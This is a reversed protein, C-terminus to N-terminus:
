PLALVVADGAAFRLRDSQWTPARLTALSRQVNAGRRPTSRVDINLFYHRLHRTCAQARWTIPTRSQAWASLEFDTRTRCNEYNLEAFPREWVVIRSNCDFSRDRRAHGPPQDGLGIALVAWSALKQQGSFPTLAHPPGPIVKHLLCTSSEAFLRQDGAVLSELRTDLRSRTDSLYM